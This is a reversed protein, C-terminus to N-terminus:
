MFGIRRTGALARRVEELIGMARCGALFALASREDVGALVVLDSVTKTGDALSLMQAEPESMPLDALAVAPAAGRALAMGGPLDQRLRALAATRRFGELILEGAPIQVRVIPRRARTGALLRYTGTRWEFTSWLIERIHDEFMRTRRADDILGRALLAEHVPEKPGILAAVVEIAEVSLIGERVCRASFRESPLNSAAFVPRGEELLVLKKLPAQALTLAGTAGAAHLAALLRPVSTFALDGEPLTPSGPSRAAPASASPAATAPLPAALGERACPEAPLEPPDDELAPLAESFVYSDLEDAIPYSASPEPEVSSGALAEADTDAPALDPFPVPSGTASPAPTPTADPTATPIPASAATSTPASISSKTSIPSATATGAPTPPPPATATATPALDPIAGETPSAPATASTTVTPTPIPTAAPGSPWPPFAETLAALAEQVDVPKELFAEAGFRLATAAYRSASLVGSVAVTKLGRKRLAILLADPRFDAVPLDVIAADAAHADDLAARGGSCLLVSAGQRSSADTVLRALEGDTSVVLLRKGALPV